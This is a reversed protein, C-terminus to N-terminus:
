FPEDYRWHFCDFDEDSESGWGFLGVGRYNGAVKPLFVRPKEDSEYDREYREFCEDCAYSDACKDCMYKKEYEECYDRYKEVFDM